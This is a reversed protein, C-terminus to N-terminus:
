QNLVTSREAWAGAPLTMAADVRQDLRVPVLRLPSDNWTRYEHVGRGEDGVHAYFIAVNPCGNEAGHIGAYCSLQRIDAPLLIPGAREDEGEEDKELVEPRLQKYKADGIWTIGDAEWRLDPVQNVLGRKEEYLLHGIPGQEVVTTGFKAAVVAAVFSEFVHNMDLLFVFVDESGSAMEYASGALLRRAMDFCRRFRDNSRDWRLHADRLATAADVDPVEELLASCCALLRAPEPNRVRTQLSQCACKFLRNMPTDPTFEDWRCRHVDKRGWNRTCQHLLDIRGRIAPTDEHVERYSHAVGRELEALLNKALLYAFLDFYSFDATDLGAADAPALDMYGAVGLMWLLNSMVSSTMDDQVRSAGALRRDLKPYIEISVGKVEVVGAYHSARLANGDFGEFVLPAKPLRSAERWSAVADAVDRRTPEDIGHDEVTSWECLRVIKRGSTM